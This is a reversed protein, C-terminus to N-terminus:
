ELSRTIGALVVLGVPFLGKLRVCVHEPTGARQTAYGTESLNKEPM